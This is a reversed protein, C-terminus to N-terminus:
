AAAVPRVVGVDAFYLVGCSLVHLACTAYTVAPSHRIACCLLSLFYYYRFPSELGGHFYCLLGIFLAEMLSVSLPYDGLFLQGRVSSATDLLTFVAGVALIANLLDAHEGGAGAVNVLLYGVLVGFWRIKIVVAEAALEWRSPWAPAAPTTPSLTAM